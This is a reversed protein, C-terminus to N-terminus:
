IGNEEFVASMELMKDDGSVDPVVAAALSLAAGDGSTLGQQEMIIDNLEKLNRSMDM